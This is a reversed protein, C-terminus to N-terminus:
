AVQWVGQAPSVVLGKDRLQQLTQRIKEKWHQNNVAKKCGDLLNYIKDLTASKLKRVCALVIDKWTADTSNRIDIEHKTPLFFSVIFDEIKKLIYLYEHVIPVFSANAYKRGESVCNHQAKIIIQVPQGPKVVDTLMSHLVGARKVDGMLIGMQAGKPMAAYFKMIVKNLESIFKEWALQGLDSKSLEGDPDPYMSGAYPINIEAGYPPHMFWFDADRFNDPVEDTIANCVLINDRKPNPNLDAGIYEIGMDRCVDSGTGSGAFLEAMKKVKYKWICFAQIWGSCNGRYSSEGWPGRDPFSLITSNNQSLKDIIERKQM